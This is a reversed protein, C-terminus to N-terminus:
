MCAPMNWTNLTLGKVPACPHLMEEDESEQAEGCTGRLCLRVSVM